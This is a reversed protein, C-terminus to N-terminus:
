TIALAYLSLLPYERVFRDMSTEFPRPANCLPAPRVGPAHTLHRTIGRALAGWFGPQARRAGLKELNLDYIEVHELLEPADLVPPM